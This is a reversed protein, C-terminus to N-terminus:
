NEFKKILYSRISDSIIDFTKKSTEKQTKQYPITFEEKYPESTEVDDFLSNRSTEYASDLTFFLSKNDYNEYNIIFNIEPLPDKQNDEVVSIKINITSFGFSSGEVNNFGSIEVFLIFDEANIEFTDNWKYQFIDYVYKEMRSLVKERYNKTLVEIIDSFVHNFLNIETNDFTRDQADYYTPEGENDIHIAIKSYVGQKLKEKSIIFYLRQEGTTYIHFNGSGKQTVCWKTNAGYKCSAEETLPRVVLYKDNEYIKEVQKELEKEKKKVLALKIVSNLEYLSNYQNIDKKELQSQFNDFNIIMPIIYSLMINVDMDPYLNKLVFNTYKHNYKELEPNNLINDLVDETFKKSYRNKLDEKRSELLLYSFKKM